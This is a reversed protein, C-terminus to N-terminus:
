PLNGYQPLSCKKKMQGTNHRSMTGPAAKATLHGPPSGAQPSPWYALSLSASLHSPDTNGITPEAGLNILEATM